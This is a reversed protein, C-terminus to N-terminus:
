VRPCTAKLLSFSEQSGAESFAEKQSLPWAFGTTATHPTRASVLQGEV